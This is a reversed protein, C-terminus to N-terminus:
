QRKRGRGVSRGVKQTRTLRGERWMGVQCRRGRRGLWIAVMARGTRPGSGPGLVFVALKAAEVGAVRAAEAAAEFKSNM